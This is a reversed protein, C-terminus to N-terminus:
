AAKEGFPNFMYYFSRYNSLENKTKGRILKQSSLYFLYFFCELPKLLIPCFYNFYGMYM